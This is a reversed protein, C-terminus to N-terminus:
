FPDSLMGLLEEVEASRVHAQKRFLDEVYHAMVALRPEDKMWQRLTAEGIALLEPDIFAIAALMQGFLGQAQGYMRAAAQDTTDVHHSLSAYVFVKGVRGVVDDVARRAEALAAPGDGLRGQHKGLGPLQEQLRKFEAEWAVDSEFISQASWKYEPAIEARSLM